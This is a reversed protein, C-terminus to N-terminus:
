WTQLWSSKNRLIPSLHVELHLCFLLNKLNLSFNNWIKDVQEEFLNLPANTPFGTLHVNPKWDSPKGGISLASFLCITPIDVSYFLAHPGLDNEFAKLGIEERWQNYQRKREPSDFMRVFHKYTDMNQRRTRKMRPAILHAHQETPTIPTTTIVMLPIRHKESITFCHTLSSPCCVILDKGYCEQLMDQRGDEFMKNIVPALTHTVKNTNGEALVQKLEPSKSVLTVDTRIKAFLLGHREVTERFTENTLLTIEHQTYKKLAAAFILAPYFDCKTGVTVIIIKM